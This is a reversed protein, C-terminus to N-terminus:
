ILELQDDNSDNKNQDVIDVEGSLAKPIIKFDKRLITLVNANRLAAAPHYLPLVLRNKVMFVKGHNESISGEKVYHAM